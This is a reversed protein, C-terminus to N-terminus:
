GAPVILQRTNTGNYGSSVNMTKRLRGGAVGVFVAVDVGVGLVSKQWSSTKAPCAEEQPVPLSAVELSVVTVSTEIGAPAAGDLKVNVTVSDLLGLGGVPKVAQPCNTSM